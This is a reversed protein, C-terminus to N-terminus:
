YIGWTQPRKRKCSSGSGPWSAACLMGLAEAMAPSKPMALAPGPLVAKTPGPPMASARGLASAAAPAPPMAMLTGVALACAPM